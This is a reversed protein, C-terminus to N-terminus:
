CYGDGRDAAIANRIWHARDTAIADVGDAILQRARQPDNVTWVAVTMGAAKFAAFVNKDLNAACLNIGDLGGTRVRKLLDNVLPESTVGDKDATGLLLVRHSPFRAKAFTMVEANFGILVVQGVRLPTKALVDRLPELVASGCKIEIWLQGGTPVSRLVDELIPISEGKWQAGKFSGVDLKKLDALTSVAIEADVGSQRKTNADHTVVIRQDSTLHIDIEVAKAGRQWALNIAALTNEPADFSEGRHAVFLVNQSM